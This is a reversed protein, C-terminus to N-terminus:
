FLRKLDRRGDLVRVIEVADVPGTPADPRIEYLVLYPREVLMRLHPRIDARRPGLRPHRPLLAIKAGIAGLTRDAAGPNDAAIGLWIEELDREAAPSIELATM